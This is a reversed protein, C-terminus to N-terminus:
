LLGGTEQKRRQAAWSARANCDRCGKAKKGGTGAQGAEGRHGEAIEELMLAKRRQPNKEYYTRGPGRKEGDRQKKGIYRGSRLECTVEKPIGEGVGAGM